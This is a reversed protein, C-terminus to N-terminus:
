SKWHLASCTIFPIMRATIGWRLPFPALMEGHPIIKVTLKENLDEIGCLFTEKV